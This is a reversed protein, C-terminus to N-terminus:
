VVKDFVVIDGQSGPCNQNSVERPNRPDSMDVIRFNAYEADIAYKGTFAFDSALNSGTIWLPGGALDSQWIMNPTRPAGIFGYSNPTGPKAWGGLYQTMPPPAASSAAAFVLAALTLPLVIRLLKPM